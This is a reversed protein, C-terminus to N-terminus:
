GLIFDGQRIIFMKDGEVKVITSSSNEVLEGFDVVLDVDKLLDCSRDVFYFPDEGTKNASTTSLPSNFQSILDMCFKNDSVRFSVFESGMNLFEPLSDKRPVIISLPGPWYKLALDVALESFEGYKKAMELDKVLLSVPKSFDMGKAKYLKRLALENFVDVALGYCTETPHMVVGGKKLIEVSINFIDLNQRDIIKM